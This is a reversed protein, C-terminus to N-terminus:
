KFFLQTRLARGSGAAQGIDVIGFEDLFMYFGWNKM